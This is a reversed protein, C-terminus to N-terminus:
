RSVGIGLGDAAQDTAIGVRSEPHRDPARESRGRHDLVVGAICAAIRKGGALPQRAPSEDSGDAPELRLAPHAHQLLVGVHGSWEGIGVCAMLRQVVAVANGPRTVGVVDFAQVGV